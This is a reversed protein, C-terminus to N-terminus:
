LQQPLLEINQKLCVIRQQWKQCVRFFAAGHLDGAAELTAPGTVEIHRQTVPLGVSARKDCRNPAIYGLPHSRVGSQAVHSIREFAAVFLKLSTYFLACALTLD